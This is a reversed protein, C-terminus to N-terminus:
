AGPEFRSTVLDDHRVHRAVAAIPSWRPLDRHPVVDLCDGVNEVALLLWHDEDYVAAATERYRLSGLLSGILDARQDVQRCKKWRDTLTNRKCLASIASPAAIWVRLGPRVGIDIAFGSPVHQPTLYEM